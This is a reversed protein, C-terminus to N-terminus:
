WQAIPIVCLASIRDGGIANPTSLIERNPTGSGELVNGDLDLTLLDPERILAMSKFSPILFRNTGPIRVSIHGFADAIAENALIRCAIVLNSKLNDDPSIV